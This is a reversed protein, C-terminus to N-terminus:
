MNPWSLDCFSDKRPLIWGQGVKGLNWFVGPFIWSEWLWKKWEVRIPTSNGVMVQAVAQPVLLARSHHYWVRYDNYGHHVPMYVKEITDHVSDLPSSECFAYCTQFIPYSCLDFFGSKLIIYTANPWKTSRLDYFVVVHNCKGGRGQGHFIWM